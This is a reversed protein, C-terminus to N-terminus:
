NLERLLVCLVFGHVVRSLRKALVIAGHGYADDKIVPWLQAKAAVCKKIAEVNQDLKRLDISVYQSLSNHTINAESNLQNSNSM